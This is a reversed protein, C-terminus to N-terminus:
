TMWHCRCDSRHARRRSFMTLIQTKSVKRGVADWAAAVFEEKTLATFSAPTPFAHLFAFFRNSRSNGRFRDIEPFYLPQYHTLM